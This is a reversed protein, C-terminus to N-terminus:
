IRTRSMPTLSLFFLRVLSGESGWGYGMSLRKTQFFEVRLFSSFVESGETQLGGEHINRSASTSPRSLSQTEKAPASAVSVALLFTSISFIQM